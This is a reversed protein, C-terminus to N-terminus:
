ESNTNALYFDRYAALCTFKIPSERHACCLIIVPAGGKVRFLICIQISTRQPELMTKSSNPSYVPIRKQDFSRPAFSNQMQSARRRMEVDYFARVQVSV